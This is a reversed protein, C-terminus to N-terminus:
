FETLYYSTITVNMKEFVKSPISYCTFNYDDDFGVFGIVFDDIDDNFEDFVIEYKRGKETTIPKQKAVLRTWFNANFLTPTKKFTDMPINQVASAKFASDVVFEWYNPMYDESLIDRFKVFDQMKMKCKVVKGAAGESLKSKLTTNKKFWALARGASFQMIKLFKRYIDDSCSYGYKQGNIEIVYQSGQKGLPKVVLASSEFLSKM